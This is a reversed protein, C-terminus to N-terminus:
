EDDSQAKKSPRGRKKKVPTETETETEPEPEPEPEKAKAAENRAKLAARAKELNPYRGDVLEPLPTLALGIDQNDDLVKPVIENFQDLPFSRGKYIHGGYLSEKLFDGIKVPAM